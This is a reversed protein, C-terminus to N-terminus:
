DPPKFKVILFDAGTPDPPDRHLTLEGCRKIVKNMFAEQEAKGELLFFEEKEDADLEVGGAYKKGEAATVQMGAEIKTSKPDYATFSIKHGTLDVPEPCGKAYNYNQFKFRLEAALGQTIVLDMRGAEDRSIIRNRDEHPFTTAKGSIGAAQLFNIWMNVVNTLVDFLERSTGNKLTIEISKTAASYEGAEDRYHTYVVQEKISDASAIQPTGKTLLKHKSANVVDGLLAYDPCLAVIAKYGKKYRDPL